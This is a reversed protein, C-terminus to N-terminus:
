QSVLVRMDQDAYTLKLKAMERPKLDTLEPISQNSAFISTTTVKNSVENLTIKM